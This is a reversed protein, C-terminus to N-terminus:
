LVYMNAIFIVIHLIFQILQYIYEHVIFYKMNQHNKLLVFPAYINATPLQDFCYRIAVILAYVQYLITV